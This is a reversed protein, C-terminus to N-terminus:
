DALSRGLAQECLKVVTMWLIIERSELVWEIAGVERPLTGIVDHAFIRAYRRLHAHKEERFEYDLIAQALVILPARTTGWEFDPLHRFGLEDALVKEDVIVNLLLANDPPLGDFRLSPTQYLWTPYFREGRYVHRNNVPLDLEKAVEVLLEITDSMGQRFLRVTEYARNSVQHIKFYKLVADVGEIDARAAANVLERFQENNTFLSAIQKAETTSDDSLGLDVGAMEFIRWLPLGVAKSLGSLTSIRPERETNSLIDHLSTKSISAREAMDRLTLNRERMFQQVYDTLVSM